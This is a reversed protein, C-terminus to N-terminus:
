IITNIQQVFWPTLIKIDQTSSSRGLDALLDKDPMIVLYKPSRANKANIAEMLANIMRAVSSPTSASEHMCSKVNFFEQIFPPPSEATNQAAVDQIQTRYENFVVKCFHDGM